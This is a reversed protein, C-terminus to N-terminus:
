YLQLHKLQLVVLQTTTMPMLGSSARAATIFPAPPAVCEKAIIM